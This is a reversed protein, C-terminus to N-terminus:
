QTCGSIGTNETIKPMEAATLEAANDAVVSTSANEISAAPATESRTPRLRIMTTDTPADDIRHPTHATTGPNPARTATRAAIPSANDPKGATAIAYTVSSIDGAAAPSPM